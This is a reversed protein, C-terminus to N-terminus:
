HVDNVSWAQFTLYYIGYVVSLYACTFFVIAEQYFMRFPRTMVVTVVYKWSRKDLDSKAIINQNGTEKIMRKAKQRTLIPAYSEPM